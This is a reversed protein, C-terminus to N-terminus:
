LTTAQLYPNHAIERRLTTTQGHGPFVKFDGELSFLKSKVAEVLRSPGCSCPLDTRGVSDYFLTDGSFLMDECVVCVSGATHGPTHIIRLSSADFAVIFDDALLSPQPEYTFPAFLSSMNLAPDKLLPVDDRHIMVPVDVEGLGAIHDIHGHTLLVFKLTYGNKKVFDTVPSLGEPADILVCNKTEPHILLYANTLLSGLCFSEVTLRGM